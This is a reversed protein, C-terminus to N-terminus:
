LPLIEFYVGIFGSADFFVKFGLWILCRLDICGDGGVWLRFDDGRLVLNFPNSALSREPNDVESYISRSTLFYRNLLHELIFFIFITLMLNQLHQIM